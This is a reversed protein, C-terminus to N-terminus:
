SPNDPTVYHKMFGKLSIGRPCTCIQYSDIMVYGAGYCTECGGLSAFIDNVIAECEKAAEQANTNNKAYKQFVNSLRQTLQHLIV